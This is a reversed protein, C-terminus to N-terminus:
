IVRDIRFLMVKLKITQPMNEREEVEPTASCTKQHKRKINLNRKLGNLQHKMEIFSINAHFKSDLGLVEILTKGTVEGM